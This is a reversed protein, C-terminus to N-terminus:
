FVLRTKWPTKNKSLRSLNHNFEIM